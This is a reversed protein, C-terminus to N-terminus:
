LSFQEKRATTEKLKDKLWLCYSALLLVQLLLSRDSLCCLDAQVDKPKNQKTLLAASQPQFCATVMACDNVHFRHPLTMAALIEWHGVCCDGSPWNILCYMCSSQIQLVYGMIHKHVHLKWVLIHSSVWVPPAHHAMSWLIHVSFLFLLSTCHKAM